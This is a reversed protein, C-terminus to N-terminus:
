KSYSKQYIKFITFKFGNSVWVVKSVKGGGALYKTGHLVSRSLHEKCGQELIEKKPIPEKEHKKM